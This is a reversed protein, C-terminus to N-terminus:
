NVPKYYTPDLYERVFIRSQRPFSATNGSGKKYPKAIPWSIEVYVRVYPQKGTDPHKISSIPNATAKGTQANISTLRLASDMEKWCIVEAAFDAPEGPPGFLFAFHGDQLGTAPDIKYSNEDLKMTALEQRKSDSSYYAPKTTKLGQIWDFHEWAARDLQAIVTNAADTALTDGVSDSTSKVAIPLLAMIAAVGIAAVAMAVAIEILSFLKKRGM